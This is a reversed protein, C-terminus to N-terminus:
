RESNLGYKELYRQIFLMQNKITEKEKGDEGRAAQLIFNGRYNIKCLGEFVGDFDASGTGLEMTTGNYKRDKIHINFIQQDLCIIEHLPNYGLGSSNGSDYNAGVYKKDIQALYEVFKEPPFDTELGLKIDSDLGAAIREIFYKSKQWEDDKKISSADILPIELLSIDLEKMAEIVNLAIELNEEFVAEQEKGFKYFARQMFYDFCVANVAVGTENIIKRIEERGTKTWLPNDKYRDYDFIFEIEAIGIEKAYYFERKWNEFPFFQIGRGKPPTLRGQMIGIKCGIM